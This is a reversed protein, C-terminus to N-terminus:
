ASRGKGYKCLVVLASAGTLDTSVQASTMQRRDTGAPTNQGSLYGNYKEDLIYM